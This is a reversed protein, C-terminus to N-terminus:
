AELDYDSYSNATMWEKTVKVHLTAPCTQRRVLEAANPPTAHCCGAFLSARVHQREAPM